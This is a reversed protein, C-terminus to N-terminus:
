RESLELETFIQDYLGLSYDSEDTTLQTTAITFARPSYIFKVSGDTFLVNWSKSPFHGFNDRTYKMGATSTPNELYDMAFLKHGPALGAKQYKRLRPAVTEARPNFLITSRTLGGGDTSMFSPNSYRVDSLPNGESFGPCFLVRGDGLFKGAYLFGLNQFQFGFAEYAAPVKVNPASLQPGVIYRTYHEGRIENLPHNGVLDIWVPYWDRFDSVYMSCALFVQHFNSTCRTRKARAKANALTPLLISALIAIIAIVVLLEILTFGRLSRSRGAPRSALKLLEPREINNLIGMLWM